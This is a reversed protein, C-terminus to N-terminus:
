SRSGRKTSPRKPPVHHDHPPSPVYTRSAVIGSDLFEYALRATEDQQVYAAEGSETMRKLVTHVAALANSYRDLDFGVSALRDRLEVATLPTRASRLLTRCAETLGWSVTPEYGCLKTLSAITQKLQALRDDLAARDAMAREYERTAAELARRYDDTSMGACKYM